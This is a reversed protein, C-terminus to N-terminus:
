LNGILDAAKKTVDKEGKFELMEIAEDISVWRSEAVEHDHDAVDGSIYKLLFFHVLKHFRVREGKKTAFYWYEVTEIKELIEGDIGSEERVERIAAQEETEGEDILGKPLQWRQSPNVSVIAIQPQSDVLRFAVGGASVQELTPIKPKEM